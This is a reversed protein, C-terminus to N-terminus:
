LFMLFINGLWATLVFAILFSPVFPIGEKVLVTKLKKQRKLRILLAIQDKTIGTEKKALVLRKSVKVDEALWDGEVLKEPLIRKYMCCSEVAKVFLWLCVTVLSILVFAASIFKMFLDDTFLLVFALLAAALALSVRVALKSAHIQRRFSRWFAERHVVALVVSCALGYFLAVVVLNSLFAVIQQEASVFPASLSFKLGLLSGVGMLLKSDGGGWQGTYFLLCALAVFVGLGALSYALFVFDSFILSRILAIGVGSFILGYSLWDPVERTRLDNVGAFILAALIVADTFGLM